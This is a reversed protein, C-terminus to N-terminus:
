KNNRSDIVYRFKDRWGVKKLEYLEVFKIEINKWWFELKQKIRDEQTKDSVVLCLITKNDTIEVQFEIISGVRDLLDQIYHTPYTKNDITILDHLRGQINSIYFGDEKKELSEILDGTRYRILPMASNTLTTLVLEKYDNEKEEKKIYEKIGTEKWWKIFTNPDDYVNPFSKQLDPRDEWILEILFNIVYEDLPIFLLENSLRSSNDYEKYGWNLWWKWLDTSQATLGYPYVRQLDVRNKWIKEIKITPYITINGNHDRRFTHEKDVQTYDLKEPYVMFDIIKLSHNSTDTEHAVVGFEANGYRDYVKCGIYQEIAKRKVSDLVEGTSEFVNFLPKKLNINFKKIYMSLAYLTSPHGELYYVNAKRIKTFMEEMDIDDFSHTTINIRNLSKCKIYEKVRDNFPFTEPFESSLHIEKFHRKKGTWSIAYQNSSATWDLAEQSYYILTSAGTSGGTKREYLVKNKYRIDILNRGERQIIEKTLYPLRNLSDINELIEEPNFNFDKFLNKYYPVFNEAEKLITYLKKQTIKDRYTDKDKEFDVFYKFKSTIDRKQIKELIPYLIYSNFYKM